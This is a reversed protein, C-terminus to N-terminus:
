TPLNLNYFTLVHIIVITNVTNFLDSRLVSLRISLDIQDIYEKM